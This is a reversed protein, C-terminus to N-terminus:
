LFSTFASSSFFSSFCSDCASSHTMFEVCIRCLNSVCEDALRCLEVVDACIRRFKSVCEVCVTFNSVFKDVAGVAPRSGQLSKAHPDWIARKERAGEGGRAGRPRQYGCARCLGGSM